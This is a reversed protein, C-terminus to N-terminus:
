GPALTTPPATTALANSSIFPVEYSKMLKKSGDDKYAYVYISRALVNNDGAAYDCIGAYNTSQMARSITAPNHDGAKDMAAAAMHFADWVQAAQNNPTAGFRAEYAKTFKKAAANLGLDPACDDAVYLDQLGTTIAHSNVAVPLSSDAIYPVDLGNQRMQNIQAAMPGPFNASIVGDVNASKFAQVQQTADTAAFANSQATVVKCNPYKKM